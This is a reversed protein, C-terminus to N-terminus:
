SGAHTTFPDVHGNHLIDLVDDPAQVVVMRGPAASAMAAIAGLPTDNSAEILTGFVDVMDGARTAAKSWAVSASDGSFVGGNWGIPHGAVNVAVTPGTHYKRNHHPTTGDGAMAGMM